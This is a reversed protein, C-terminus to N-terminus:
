PCSAVADVRVVSTLPVLYYGTPGSIKLTDSGIQSLRGCYQGQSSQVRVTPLAPSRAPALWTTGAGAALSCVGAITLLRATRIARQIQHVEAETWRELDEGTLLCEDGPTRSAARIAQLTAIVFAALAIGFLALLIAPYPPALDAIDTRGKVILVAGLLATVGTLGTRWTEAQRRAVDLQTFRLQQARQAWWWRDNSM